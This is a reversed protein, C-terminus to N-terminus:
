SFNISIKLLYYYHFVSHKKITFFPLYFNPIKLLCFQRRQYLESIGLEHEKIWSIRGKEMITVHTAPITRCNTPVPFCQLVIKVPIRRIKTFLVRGIHCEIVTYSSLNLYKPFYHASSRRASLNAVIPKNSCKDLPQAGQGLVVVYQMHM